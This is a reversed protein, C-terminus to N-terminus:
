ILMLYYFVSKCTNIFNFVLKILYGDFLFLKEIVNGDCLFNSM